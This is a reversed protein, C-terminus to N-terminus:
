GSQRPIGMKITAGCDLRDYTYVRTTGDPYTIKTVRDDDDYDYTATWGESDTYTRIRDYADYTFSAATANNANTVTILDGTANYQYSTTQGLPNTVSALQGVTNYTYTKTQGAADTYFVPRHQTNYIFQAITQQVGFATTQSIAALDIHNSYAFSTARGVPDTVQTVKFFGGADYSFTSLQTTGDDLVRATVSPKIYNGSQISSTQGLYQFWVRNELPNKISEVVNSKFSFNSTDHLFHTIRAKAYDCGGSPTCGAALYASKDWHASNRFTLFQNKPALPMGVPVTATPDSDPIPAPEVWEEREHNGLPDTVQVFRPPANTGPATYAFTTTGYPTTLSNILSNADYTFSSTLGIIDTISSLRFSADYTLVASRGFPDTIQTILLPRAPLGYTFTTQRGTADTLSILRLQNDYNLTLANGQPDIVQSLLINRPFSLGGNSQAYIEVSGNGLQRRYTVPSQSALVLISGDDNQATFQGTQSQFGTYFYAGGGAIYRSVTAGPHTPDDTVYSLWNMTWKQGINFFSFNAPQSDERQTYTLRVKASPGIPPSYGVPTDALTVSVTSEGINYFCMPCGSPPPASGEDPPPNGASPGVGFDDLPPNGPSPSGGPNAPPDQPGAIGPPTGATPGRGWINAAEAASADRWQHAVKTKPAPTLFYGSAEADLAARTVWIDQPAFVPDHIRFRGGEESLITAFHGVKWHVVAPVPVPEGPKRVVIRHAFNARDALQGVEALSTGNPGANYFQLFDLQDSKAGLEIMLSKLALPGCIFLHRSDKESSILPSKQSLTLEERAIQVAETASGMIPREGIEDFLTTLEENRGLSAYLRALEGVAKDVLAKAQPDTAGKGERWASQWADLARSFYGNHLYSLGLNTAIAPGWGSNPYLSSFLVLAGLDDPTARQEYVRLAQLLAQDEAPSTPHTAILPEAFHASRIAQALRASDPTEAARVPLSGLLSVVLLLFLSPFSARALFKM